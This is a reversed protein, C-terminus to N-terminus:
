PTLVDAPLRGKLERGASEGLAAADRAAGHAEVEFVESGDIRLVM